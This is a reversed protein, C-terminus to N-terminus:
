GLLRLADAWIQRFNRVSTLNAEYSRSATIMDVMETVVNVNPMEVYGFRPSDPDKEADPHGPEYRLITPTKTDEEIAAIRVGEGTRDKVPASRLYAEFPFTVTAGGRPEFIVRQRRYPGAKGDARRTTDVNAINNAIVDLRTREATLGSASTDLAHFLGAM